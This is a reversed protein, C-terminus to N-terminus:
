FGRVGGFPVYLTSGFNRAPTNRVDIEKLEIQVSADMPEGQPTWHLNEPASESVSECVCLWRTFYPRYTLLCRSPPEVGPIVPRTLDLLNQVPNHVDEQIRAPDTAFFKLTASFSLSGSNGYNIIPASRNLIAQEEWQANKSWSPAEALSSTTLVWGLDLAQIMLLVPVAM